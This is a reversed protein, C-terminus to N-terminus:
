NSRFYGNREELVMQCNRTPSSIALKRKHSKSVTKKAIVKINDIVSHFETEIEDNLTVLEKIFDGANIPFVDSSCGEVVVFLSRDNLFSNLWQHLGPPLGYAALKALFGEQWM